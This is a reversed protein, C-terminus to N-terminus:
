AARHVQHAPKVRFVHTHKGVCAMQCENALRDLHRHIDDLLVEGIPGPRASAAELVAAAAFLEDKVVYAQALARANYHSPDPQM